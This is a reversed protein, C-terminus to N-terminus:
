VAGKGDTTLYLGTRVPGHAKLGDRMAQIYRDWEFGRLAAYHMLIQGNVGMVYLLGIDPGRLATKEEDTLDFDDLLEEFNENFRAQTHPDRNLQYLLKQVYYLSM